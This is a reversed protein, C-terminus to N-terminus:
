VESEDRVRIAVFTADEGSVSGRDVTWNHSAIQVREVTCILKGTPTDEVTAVMEGTNLINTLHEEPTSGSKPFWGKAKLSEGVLRFMSCTMQVRYGVPAFEEVEVNDMVELPQREIEESVNVNRAYGVKVGDLSFRARAGTCVQRRAM